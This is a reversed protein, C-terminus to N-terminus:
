RVAVLFESNILEYHNRHTRMKWSIVGERSIQWPPSLIKDRGELLSRVNDLGNGEYPGKITGGLWLAEPAASTTWSFPDAFFFASGQDVAVRNMEFLHALPYSVRDLLNLSAVQQFAGHAFPLKLADAVVFELNETCFTEPLRIQFAQQINGEFPLSFSIYRDRALRRAERIFNLSLDCGVAWNSRAAMEFTVRGVSCGVDLASRYNDALCNAWAANAESNEPDGALDAYHSWLYRGLIGSEEYRWQGGSPGIEPNQLLQAIGDRIIYRQKCTKCTLAGSIIDGGAECRVALELQYEKPLCRPCILYPLLFRKM